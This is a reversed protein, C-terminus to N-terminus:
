ADQWTTQTGTKIAVCERPATNRWSVLFEARRAQSLM